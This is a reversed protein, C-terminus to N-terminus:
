TPTMVIYTHRASLQADGAVCALLGAGDLGPMTRDVLVVMRDAAHRLLRLAALGDCAESVDHGADELADRLSARLVDDDNVILVHAM